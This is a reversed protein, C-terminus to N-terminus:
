AGASAGTRDYSFLFIKDDWVEILRPSYGEARVREDLWM